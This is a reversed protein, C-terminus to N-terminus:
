GLARSVLVQYIAIAALAYVGTMTAVQEWPMDDELYLKMALAAVGAVLATSVLFGVWGRVLWYVIPLGILVVFAPGRDDIREILDWLDRDFIQSVATQSAALGVGGGLILGLLIRSM